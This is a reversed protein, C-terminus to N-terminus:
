MFTSCTEGRNGSGALVHAIGAEDRSAKWVRLTSSLEPTDHLGHIEGDRVIKRRVYSLECRRLQMMCEMIRGVAGHLECEGSHV